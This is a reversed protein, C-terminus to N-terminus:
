ANTLNSTEFPGFPAKSERGKRYTALCEDVSDEFQPVVSCEGADIRIQRLRARGLVRNHYLIFQRESM